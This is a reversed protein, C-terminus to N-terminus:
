MYKTELNKAIAVQMNDCRIDLRDDHIYGKEMGWWM